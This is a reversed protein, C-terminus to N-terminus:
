ILQEINKNEPILDVILSQFEQPISNTDYHEDIYEYLRNVLDAQAKFDVFSLHKGHEPSYVNVQLAVNLCDYTFQFIKGLITEIMGRSGFVTNEMAKILRRHTYGIDRTSYATNVQGERSSALHSFLASEDIGDYFSKTIFGNAELACDNPLFMPLDRTGNNFDKVQFDGKIKQNALCGTIQSTNIDSGKAQAGNSGLINLENTEKLEKNGIEKGLNLGEDLMSIARKKWFFLDINDKPTPGLNFFKAQITNIENSIKKHIKVRNTYFTHQGMSLGHWMVFWDGIKAFEDIFRNAEEMSFLKCIIGVLSMNGTGLSQKTLTGKVLIGDIITVNSNRYTLNAPFALSALARGSNVKVKHRKCRKALTSKRHSDDIISLVEFMRKEPIEVEFEGLSFGRWSIFWKHIKEFENIIRSLENFSFNKSIIEILSEKGPKMLDKTLSGNILIGDIIEIRESKYNLTIPFIISMLVNGSNEHINLQHAREFLTQKRESDKILNLGINMIKESLEIINRENRFWTKTALYGFVLGHFAIGIMGRNSQENMVHQFTHMITEAEVQSTITQPIHVTVEDGDFDLNKPGCNSLHIKIVRDNHLYVFYGMISPAHLTPQRGALVVDGDRIPREYEIGIEVVHSKRLKDDFIKLVPNGDIIPYFNKYIGNRIEVQIEVMNYKTAKVKVTLTEAHKRPIGVWGYSGDSPSAVTRSCNDVRKGQIYKRFTGEKRGFGKCIGLEKDSIKVATSADPGFYIEKLRAYQTAQLDDLLYKDQTQSMRINCDIIGIYKTTYFHEMLKGHIMTPLHLNPPLTLIGHLILNRPHNEGTFRLIKLSNKDLNDFLSVVNDISKSKKTDPDGEEVFLIVHNKMQDNFIERQWGPHCHLTHIKNTMEALLKLYKKRDSIKDLGAMKIFDENAYVQGCYGCTSKLIAIVEEQCLPNIFPKNFPIYARHQECGKYDRSCTLCIKRKEPALRKDFVGFTSVENATSMSTITLVSSNKMQEPSMYCLSYEVPVIRPLMSLKLSVAKYRERAIQDMPTEKSFFEQDQPKERRLNDTVIKDRKSTVDYVQDKAGLILKFNTARCANRALFDNIKDRSLNQM